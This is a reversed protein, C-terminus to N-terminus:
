ARAYVLEYIIELVVAAAAVLLGTLLALINIGFVKVIAYAALGFLFYRSGFIAARWAKKPPGKSGLAQALHRIWRFNLISFAAGALFGLAAAFGYLFFTTAVGAAAIAFMLVNLRQYAREFFAGDGDAM